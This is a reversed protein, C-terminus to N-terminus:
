TQDRLQELDRELRRFQQHQRIGIVCLAAPLAIMLIVSSVRQFETFTVANNAGTAMAGFLLIMAGDLTRNKNFANFSLLLAIALPSWRSPIALWDANVLGSRSLLLIMLSVTIFGTLAGFIFDLRNGKLKEQVGGFRQYLHQNIRARAELWILAAIVVYFVGHFNTPNPLFRMIVLLAAAVVLTLGAKTNSFMSYQETLTQLKTLRELSPTIRAPNM